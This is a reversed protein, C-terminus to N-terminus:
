QVKVAEVYKSSTIGLSYNIWNEQAQLGAAWAVYLSPVRAGALHSFPYGGGFRPNVDIVNVKGDKDVIVDVDILGQHPIALAIKKAVEDFKEAAVSVAKDTEGGRMAIKKRALVGSYRQDLDCVVDLGYETGTIKEQIVLLDEPAYVTQDHALVGFPDTVENTASHVADVLSKSDAFRLGRSGSGFRGKTVYKSATGKVADLDMGSWTKPSPVGFEMLKESMLLKDEVLKQCNPELRVLQAFRPERPLVAWKSLEFDNISIALGISKNSLTEELWPIYDDSSAIPASIFEDAFARAPSFPDADAAIVNGAIGNHELAERFWRVLYPRRGVSCLLINM